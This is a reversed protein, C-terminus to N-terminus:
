VLLFILVSSLITKKWRNDGLIGEPITFLYTSSHPDFREEDGLGKRTCLAATFGRRKLSTVQDQMLSILPSIM